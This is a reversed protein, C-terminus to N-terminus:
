KELCCALLPVPSQLYPYMPESLSYVVPFLWIFPYIAIRILYNIDDIVKRCSGIILINQEGLILHLIKSVTNFSFKNVLFSLAKEEIERIAEFTPFDIEISSSIGTRLSATLPFNTFKIDIFDKMKEGIIMHKNVNM